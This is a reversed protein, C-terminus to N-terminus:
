AMPPNPPEPPPMEDEPSDEMPVKIRQEDKAEQETMQPFRLTATNGELTLEGDIDEGAGDKTHIKIHQPMGELQSDDPQMPDFFPSAEDDLLETPGRPATYADMM